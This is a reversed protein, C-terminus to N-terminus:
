FARLSALDRRGSGPPRGASFSGIASTVRNSFAEVRIASESMVVTVAGALDTRWVAVGAQRLEDLIQPAPLNRANDREVAMLAVRPQLCRLWEPTFALKAGQHGVRVLTSALSAGAGVLQKEVSATISGPLLVSRTGSVLRLALTGSSSARRSTPARAALRRPPWLIDVRASAIRVSDGAATERVRVGLADADSLLAAWRPDPLEDALPPHWLQGVRFNKLVSDIASLDSSRDEAAVVIDIKKLGRSWLYPSVINEGPDWAHERLRGQSRGWGDPAGCAGVLVTTGDPLVIFTADGGGCDLATVEVIGRPLDPAFPYVVVLASMVGFAAAAALGISRWRGLAIAGVVISSAFGWAVWDPPSPVRYSLWAPVHHLRTLAFLMEVIGAVPRAFCAAPRPITASLVMTPFGVALLVTMLPIALANLGIGVLTVRHFTEAMPLLLGVQLLASFWVINIIWLVARTSLTVAHQALRPHADFFKWRAELAAILSRLDLRFQVQRPDLLVDREPSPLQELARRYPETSRELVPVAVGAILLAAAFSLQFGSEFLWAPRDVLLLLAALGLANLARHDRDFLGALLFAMIMVTARLTPARQEVLLAYVLLFSFLVALRPTKRLRLLRLLGGALMALLGVHLGAIVLLHYLGSKRFHDVTESDLSSRDGLLVAKLVAGDGGQRTWPPFLRDIGALLQRRTNEVLPFLRPSGASPLKQILQPDRITGTWYLDEISQMRTRFDFSGPNRYVRPQRLRVEAVVCDGYRLRPLAMQALQGRDNPWELWLRIRGSAPRSVAATEMRTLAVDFQWGLATQIPDSMLRGAVRVPEKPNIGWEALHSIHSPPFRLDFLYAAASGSFVFGSLAFTLALWRRDHRLLVLGVVLCVAACATAVAAGKSPVFGAGCRTLSIGLAFSCALALMPYKM